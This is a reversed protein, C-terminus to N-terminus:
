ARALDRLQALADAIRNIGETLIEEDPSLSIRFCRTQHGDDPRTDAPIVFFHRGPTVFVHERKLLHYLEVDDFWDEDIWVWCFMGGAAAHVRWRIDAPM